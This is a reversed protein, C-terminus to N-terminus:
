LVSAVKTHHSGDWCVWQVDHQYSWLFPCRLLAGRLEGFGSSTNDPLIRVHNDIGCHLGAFNSFLIHHAGGRCNPPILLIIYAKQPPLCMVSAWFTTKSVSNLPGLYFFKPSSMNGLRPLKTVLNWHETFMDARLEVQFCHNKTMCFRWRSYSNFVSMDVLFFLSLNKVCLGM